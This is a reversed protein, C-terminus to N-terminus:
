TLFMKAIDEISRAFLIEGLKLAIVVILPSLDLGSLSPLLRRVPRLLPENLSYLLGIVPNYSSPNVWSLIVQLLVSWFFVNITLRVLEAVSFMFLSMFPLSYGKLQSIVWLEVLQLVVLIVICSLDIGAIGPVIRRLPILPPNTAKVIFQSLPNYFDARVLQFLLRLLVLLMYLGFLTQVLFGLADNVQNGM